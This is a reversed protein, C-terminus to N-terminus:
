IFNFLCEKTTLSSDPYILSVCHFFQHHFPMPVTMKAVSIM